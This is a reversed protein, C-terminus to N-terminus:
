IGLLVKTLVESATSVGLEKVTALTGQLKRKRNEDPEAAATATLVAVLNEFLDEPAAGPWGDLMTHARETLAVEVPIENMYLGSTSRLYDAEVLARITARFMAERGEPLAHLLARLAVGHASFGAAEWYERLAALVPRVAPWALKNGFAAQAEVAALFDAPDAVPSDSMARDYQAAVDRGAPTPTLQWSDGGGVYGIDLLGQDRLEELVADDCDPWGGAPEAHHQLRSGGAFRLFMMPERTGTRPHVHSHAEVLARLLSVSDPGSM